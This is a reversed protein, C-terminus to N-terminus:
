GRVQVKKAGDPSEDRPEQATVSWRPKAGNRRKENQADKGIEKKQNLGMLIISNSMKEEHGTHRTIQGPEKANRTIKSSRIEATM